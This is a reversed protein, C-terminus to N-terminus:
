PYQERALPFSSLCGIFLRVHQYLSVLDSNKAIDSIQTRLLLQQRLYSAEPVQLDGASLCWFSVYFHPNLEHWIPEPMLAKIPNAVEQVVQDCAWNFADMESVKEQMRHKWVQYVQPEFVNRFLCFATDAPVLYEKMMRDVPIFQALMEERTLQVSLFTIFQVLTGQCDDLLRGAIKVHQEPNRVFTMHDRINAMLFIFPMIVKHEILVSTLRSATRRTNRIQSYYGGEQLLLEGGSSADLQDDTLDESTDIGTMKHVVERLMALDYSSGAKLQSLVYQLLGAIDFQYKKCILGTFSSLALLQQGIQAEDLSTKEDALAEIISFVLVDYSLNGCFKLADVVPGILNTYKQMTSLLCDFMICPNSHSLKGLQRGMPKVNDKSLRKMLARSIAVVEARCKALIPEVRCHTHKWQSYLRYRHFYPMFQLFSWIDEPLVSNADVLSMSPLIVEDALNFIAQYVYDVSNKDVRSKLYHACLRCLKSLLKTDRAGYCGLFSAVPVLRQAFEFARTPVNVYNELQWTSAYELNRMPKRTSMMCAPLELTSEYLPEMLYHLFQCIADGVPKFGAAWHVPMRELIRTSLKWNGSLILAECLELKQSKKYQFFVM